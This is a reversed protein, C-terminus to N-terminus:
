TRCGTEGKCRKFIEGNLCVGGRCHFVNTHGGFQSGDVQAVEKRVVGSGIPVSHTDRVNRPREGDESCSRYIPGTYVVASGWKPSTRKRPRVRGGSCGRIAGARKAGEKAGRRFKGRKRRRLAAPCVMRVPLLVWRRESEGLRGPFKWGFVTQHRHSFSHVKEYPLLQLQIIPLRRGINM